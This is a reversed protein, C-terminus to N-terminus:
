RAARTAAEARETNQSAELTTVAEQSVEQVRSAMNVFNDRLVKSDEAWRNMCSSAWKQYAAIANSADPNESIAECTRLGEAVDQQRHRLWSKCVVEYNKLLTSQAELSIRTQRAAVSWLASGNLLGFRSADDETNKISPMQLRWNGSISRAVTNICIPLPLLIQGSQGM